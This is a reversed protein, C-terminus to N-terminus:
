LLSLLEEKADADGRKAQEMTLALEAAEDISEEEDDLCLICAEDFATVRGHDDCEIVSIRDPDAAGSM